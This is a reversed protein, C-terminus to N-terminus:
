QFVPLYGVLAGAPTRLEVYTGALLTLGVKTVRAGLVTPTVPASTGPDGKAGAAGAAGTDGKAGPDGKPGAPGTDGKAGVEGKAGTPGTEGTNGQPGRAGTAGPDGQLGREGPAGAPGTAGRAGTPGTEGADGAPGRAGAAGRDGQPGAPGAPGTPGAPGPQAIVDPWQEIHVLLRGDADCMLGSLSGGRLTQASHPLSKGDANLRVRGDGDRPVNANLRDPTFTRRPAMVRHFRGSRFVSRFRAVERRRWAVM